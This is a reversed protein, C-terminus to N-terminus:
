TMQSIQDRLEDLESNLREELSAVEEELSQCRQKLSDVEDELALHEEWTPVRYEDSEPKIWLKTNSTEPQTESIKVVDNADSYCQTIASIISGRVEEGYTASGIQQLYQEITAM